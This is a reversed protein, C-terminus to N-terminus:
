YGQKKQNETTNIKQDTEPGVTMNGYKVMLWVVKLGSTLIVEYSPRPDGSLTIIKLFM